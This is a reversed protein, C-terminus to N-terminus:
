GGNQKYPPNRCDPALALIRRWQSQAVM